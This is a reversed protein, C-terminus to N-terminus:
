AQPVSGVWFKHTKKLKDPNLFVSNINFIISASIQAILISINYNIWYVKRKPIQKKFFARYFIKILSRFINEYSRNYGFFLRTHYLVTYTRKFMFGFSHFHYHFVRANYDYVLKYGKALATKAWLADEAFNTEIFPTEILASKRYMANVDDWGCYKHQEKGELKDFVGPELEIIRPVPESYPRFWELPNKDDDHPVIQQGCVGKVKEETFHRYMIELWNESAAIADQVTLVVFQGKALSVGYNRTLGHNFEEPPIQYLHVPFDRILELTGDTSGSDIIIVELRDRLSQSFIGELCAKITKSGNKAPIIISILPNEM